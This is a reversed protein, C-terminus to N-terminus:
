DYVPLTLFDKVDNLVEQIFNWRWLEIEETLLQQTTQNGINGLHTFERNRTRDSSSENGETGTTRKTGQIVRDDDTTHTLGGTITLQESSQGSTSNTM